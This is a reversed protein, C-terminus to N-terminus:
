GVEEGALTDVTCAGNATAKLHFTDPGFVARWAFPTLRSVVLADKLLGVTAFPRGLSCDWSRERRDWPEHAAGPFM